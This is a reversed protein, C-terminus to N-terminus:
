AVAGAGGSRKKFYYTYGLCNGFRKRSDKLHWFLIWCDTANKCAYTVPM